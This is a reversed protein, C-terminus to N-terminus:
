AQEQWTQLQGHEALEHAYRAHPLSCPRGCLLMNDCGHLKPCGTDKCGRDDNFRKCFAYQHAQDACSATEYYYRRRGRSCALPRTAPQPPTKRPPLIVKPVAKPPPAASTLPQSLQQPAVLAVKPPVLKPATKQKTVTVPAMSVSHSVQNVSQPAAKCAAVSLSETPQPMLNSPLQSPQSLESLQTSQEPNAAPFEGSPEIAKSAAPQQSAPPSQSLDAKSHSELYEGIASLEPRFLPPSPLKGECLSLASAASQTVAQVPAAAPVASESGAAVAVAAPQSQSLQSPQSLQSLQSPQAPQSPQAQVNESQPPVKLRVLPMASSDDYGELNWRTEETRTNFIYWKSAEWSWMRRWPYPLRLVWEVEESELPPSTQCTGSLVNYWINMGKGTLTRDGVRMLQPYFIYVFPAPSYSNSGRSLYQHVREVNGWDVPRIDHVHSLCQPPPPIQFMLPSAM